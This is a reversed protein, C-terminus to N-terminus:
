SSEDVPFRSARIQRGNVHLITLRNLRQIGAGTDINWRNATRRVGNRTAHGHVLARLGGVPQSQHERITEPSGPLGLLAVDVADPDGRELMLVAESWTRHPVEAHVIGVAGYPTELTIAVPMAALAACWTGREGEPVDALWESGAPPLMGVPTEFWRLVARDHNGLAVAEFHQELWELAAVSHPGRNVLDGVGFLRDRGPDFDLEALARALTRFCGHVDGVVFDRGCMNADFYSVGPTVSVSARPDATLTPDSDAPAVSRVSAVHRGWDEMIPIRPVFLGTRRYRRSVESGVAHSLCIEALAFDHGMEASWTSFSSRFGHPVCAFELQKVFNARGNNYLRRGNLTPFVLDSGGSRQRVDALDPHHRAERLVSLAASSLPVEHQNREKMREAPVTWKRGAWDIESWLAGRAEHTRVATLVLFELLLREGIWRDAVRARVLADSVQGHPLAQHYGSKTPELQLVADLAPGCPNDTRFGSGVAWALVVSIQQRVRVVSKPLREHLRSLVAAVVQTDIDSVLLHGLSPCVHRELSRRWRQEMQPNTWKKRRDSIAGDAAEAFTPVRRHQLRKHAIPDVGDFALLCNRLARKRADSLSVDPYRGLGLTRRRGCATIRQEWRKRGDPTVMLYLGHGKNDHYKGARTIRQVFLASLGKKTKVGM